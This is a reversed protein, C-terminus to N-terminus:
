SKVAVRLFSECHADFRELFEDLWEDSGGHRAFRTAIDEPSHSDSGATSVLGHELCYARYIPTLEPSVRPHACEIADLGCEVRLIDMRERNAGDFYLSPHALSIFGGAEKVMSVVERAPSWPPRTFCASARKRLERYEEHSKVWGRDLFFQCEFRDLLHTVGTGEIVHKPKYRALAERREKETYPVGQGIMAQSWRDGTMRQAVMNNEIFGALRGSPSLPLGYCLLDVAGLSTVATFEAATIVRIGPFRVAMEQLEASSLLHHHETVSFCEVGLSRAQNFYDEVSASGDFSWHTHNHLDFRNVSPM